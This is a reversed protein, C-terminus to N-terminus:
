CCKKAKKAKATKVKKAAVPAAAVSTPAVAERIAHARHARLLERRLWDLAATISRARVAGIAAPYELKRCWVGEPTHLGVFVTGASKADCCGSSGTCCTISLGYDAVLKESVGSAMAAAIEASIAGHQELLCEPLDLLIIKAANRYCLVGGQFFKTSGPLDLFRTALMGGTGSEAVALRKEDLRLLDAIAESLSDNGEAFVDDGLLIKAEDALLRARKAGAAANRWGFRVDVAWPHACFAVEIEPYKALLPQLRTELASEGVGATRLQIWTESKGLLQKRVLRPLVENAWMPELEHPPGPLMVLVKGDQEIWLGPATGHPNPLVKAGVPRWAQKLNNDSMPWGFKAFRARMAKEVSKDFVLKQGLLKAVADRTRDDCTPGLGGTTIVVDARKWSQALQRGIEKADDPLVINAALAVGRQSLRGGVFGLHSNPTRGLLLEDGLTLLEFRPLAPQATPASKKAM